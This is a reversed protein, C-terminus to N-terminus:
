NFFFFSASFWQLSCRIVSGGNMSSLRDRMEWGGLVFFVHIDQMWEDNVSIFKENMWSSVDRTWQCILNRMWSYLCTEWENLCAFKVMWSPLTKREWENLCLINGDVFSSSVARMGWSLFQKWGRLCIERGNLCVTKTKRGPLFSLSM